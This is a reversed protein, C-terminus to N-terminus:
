ARRCTRARAPMPALALTDAMGNRGCRFCHRLRKTGPWDFSISNVALQSSFTIACIEPPFAAFASLFHGYFAAFASPSSTLERLDALVATMSETFQTFTCFARLTLSYGFQIAEEVV